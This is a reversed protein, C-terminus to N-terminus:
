RGSGKLRQGALNRIRKTAGSGALGRLVEASNADEAVRLQLWQSWHRTDDGGLKTDDDAVLRELIGVEIARRAAFDRQRGAPVVEVWAAREKEPVLEIARVVTASVLPSNDDDELARLVVARGGADRLSEKYLQWRVHEDALVERADRGARDSLWEIAEGPEAAM